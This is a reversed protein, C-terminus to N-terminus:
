PNFSDFVDGAILILHVDEAEVLACLEDVFERQEPLRSRGELTRGLHWDSTHLIRM